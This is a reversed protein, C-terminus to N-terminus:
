SYLKDAFSTSGSSSPRNRSRESNTKRNAQEKLVVDLCGLRQSFYADGDGTDYDVKRRQPNGPVFPNEAILTDIRLNSVNLSVDADDL